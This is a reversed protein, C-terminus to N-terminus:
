RSRSPEDLWRSSRIGIFLLLLAVAGVAYLAWHHDHRLALHAVLLAIYALFPLIGHWIRDELAKKYETPQILRRLVIILYM